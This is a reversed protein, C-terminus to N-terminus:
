PCSLGMDILESWTITKLRDEPVKAVVKANEWHEGPRISRCLQAACFLQFRPFQEPDFNGPDEPVPIGAEKAADVLMGPFALM